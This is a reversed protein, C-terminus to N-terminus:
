KRKRNMTFSWYKQDKGFNQADELTEPLKQNLTEPLFSSFIAGLLTLGLLVVYPLRADITTGLFVVYPGLIGFINAMMGGISTGTQRVCTPYIEIAQLWVLYFSCTVSLKILAVFFIELGPIHLHHVSIVLINAISAALYAGTQTWRRGIYNSLVRGLMYGPLEVISQWFFNMFPNGAMNTVNLVLAYYSLGCVVWCIIIIITNKALRWHIFLTAMGYFKEKKDAIKQLVEYTNEPVSTKNIRAIYELVKASEKVRGRSALWRPSEPLLKFMFFYIICPITTFVMLLAWDKLIWAIMPLACMGIVWGLCQLFAIHARKNDASVEMCIVLPSQFVSTTATSGIVITAIFLSYIHSTFASLVRGIVLVTLSIYFVPRRGMQDGLQGFIFTGIIEGIRGAAFTNTVYLERDCVWNQLSPATEKYWQRDYDWGYQCDIIETTNISTGNLPYMKCSSFNELGSQTNNVKPLSREKWEDLTYNTTERGPVYCWHDPVTMALVINLYPMTVFTVLIFNYLFNFRNQFKGDNGIEEIISDFLADDNIEEKGTKESLFQKTLINEPGTKENKVSNNKINNLKEASMDEDVAVETRIITIMSDSKEVQTFVM